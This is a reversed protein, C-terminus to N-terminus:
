FMPSTIMNDTWVSVFKKKTADYADLGRGEFPMGMMDGHFHSFTTFGGPGAEITMTGKSKMGMMDMEADWTGVARQLQKHEATAQPPAMEQAQAGGKDQFAWLTAGCALAVCSIVLARIM